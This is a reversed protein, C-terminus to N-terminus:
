SIKQMRFLILNILTEISLVFENMIKSIGSTNMQSCTGSTNM